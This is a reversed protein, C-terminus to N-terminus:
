SKVAREHFLLGIGARADINVQAIANFGRQRLQQGRGMPPLHQAFDAPEPTQERQIDLTVSGTSTDLTSPTPVFSFSAKAM